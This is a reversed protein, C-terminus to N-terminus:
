NHNVDHCFKGKKLGVTKCLTHFEQLKSPHSIFYVVFWIAELSQSILKLGDVILNFIHGCRVNFMENLPDGKITKIFLDIVSINNSANHFIISFNKNQMDFLKLFRTLSDYTSDENHPFDIFGM